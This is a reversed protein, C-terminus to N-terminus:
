SCSSWREKSLEFSHVHFQRLIPPHKSNHKAWEVELEAAEQTEYLNSLEDMDDVRYWTSWIFKGSHFRKQWDAVNRKMIDSPRRLGKSRRNVMTTNWGM